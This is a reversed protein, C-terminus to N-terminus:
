TSRGAPKRNLWVFPRLLYYRTRRLCFAVAILSVLVGLLTTASFSSAADQAAESVAQGAAEGGQAAGRIAGASAAGVLKTLEEFGLESLAGAADQFTEPSILYAGLAGGGLWKGWHPRVYRQWFSWSAGDYRTMARGFDELSVARVGQPARLTGAVIAENVRVASRLADDGYLGVAALAEGGGARLLRGRLAIDPIAENLTRSGRALVLATNRSVDDMRMVTKLLSPDGHGVTERLLRGVAESRAAARAAVSAHHSIKGSHELMDDLSRQLVRSQGVHEVLEDAHRIPVDDSMM